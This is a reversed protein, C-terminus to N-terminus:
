PLHWLAKGGGQSVGAAARRRACRAAREGLTPEQLGRGEKGFDGLGRREGKGLGLSGTRLCLPVRDPEAGPLSPPRAKKPVKNQGSADGEGREM